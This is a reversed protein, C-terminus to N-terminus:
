RRPKAAKTLAAEGLRTLAAKLDPQEIEGVRSAVKDVVDAPPPVPKESKRRPGPRNAQVVKVTQVAQYGYFANVRDRHTRDRLEACTRCRSRVQRYAHGGRCPAPRCPPREALEDEGAFLAGGPRRGVVEAWQAVLEAHAFGYREFAPRTIQRFHKDLSDM